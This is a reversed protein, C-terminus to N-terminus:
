VTKTPAAMRVNNKLIKDVIKIEPICKSSNLLCFCVKATIICHCGMRSEFSENYFQGTPWCLLLYLFIPYLLKKRKGTKGSDMAISLLFVRHLYIPKLSRDRIYTHSSTKKIRENQAVGSILISVLGFLQQKSSVHSNPSPFNNRDAPCCVLATLSFTNPCM